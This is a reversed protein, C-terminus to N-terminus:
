PALWGQSLSENVFFTTAHFYTAARVGKVPGDPDRTQEIAISLRDTSGNQVADVTVLYDVGKRTIVFPRGEFGKSSSTAQVPGATALVSGVMALLAVVVGARSTRTGWSGRM